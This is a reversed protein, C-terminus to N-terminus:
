KLKRKQGHYAEGKFSHEDFGLRDRDVIDKVREKYKKNQELDHLLTENKANREKDRERQTKKSKDKTEKKWRYYEPSKDEFVINDINKDVIFCSEVFRNDINEHKPRGWGDHSISVLWDRYTKENISGGNVIHNFLKVNMINHKIFVDRLLDIQRDTLTEILRYTKSSNEPVFTTRKTKRRDIRYQRRDKDVKNEQLRGQSDLIYQERDGIRWSLLSDVLNNEHRANNYEKMAELIHQRVKDYNKGISKKLCRDIYRGVIKYNQTGHDYIKMDYSEKYHSRHMSERIPLEDNNKM